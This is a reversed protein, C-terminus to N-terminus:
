EIEMNLTKIKKEVEELLWHPTSTAGSIGVLNRDKFWNPDLEKESSVHFSNSNASKCISFLYKGNSSNKGSVFIIVEHSKCFTKLDPARNAVQGCVSNTYKFYTSPMQAKELEQYIELIILKYDEKSKTTQSFLRIPKEFNIQKINEINEIVIANGKTQGVLGIMEPHNRTGFLVVQGNQMKMEIAAKRVKEQLKIVIPCTGDIIAIKNKQALKYTSPPEGHARLLLKSNKLKSLEEHDITVLGKAKLRKIEEQNHVIEGLCNLSNNKIMQQEALEIAHKVGFCFGSSPDITVKM